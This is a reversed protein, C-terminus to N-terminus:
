GAEATVLRHGARVRLRHLPVLPVADQLEVREDLPRVVVDPVVDLLMVHGVVAEVVLAVRTDAARGARARDLGALVDAGAAPPPLVRLVLLAPQVVLAGPFSAGRTVPAARPGIALQLWSCPILFVATHHHPLRGAFKFFQQNCAGLWPGQALAGG